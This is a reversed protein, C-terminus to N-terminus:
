TNFVSRLPASVVEIRNDIRVVGELRAVAEQAIQKLYYTPLCGILTLVGDRYDCSVNKLAVYPNRRLVSEARECVSAAGVPNPLAQLSPMDLTFM